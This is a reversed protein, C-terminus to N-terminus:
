CIFVRYGLSSLYSALTQVDKKSQFVTALHRRYRMCGIPKLVGDVDRLDCFYWTNGTVPHTYKVCYMM